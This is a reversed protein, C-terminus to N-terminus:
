RLVTKKRIRIARVACLLILACLLIAGWQNLTPVPEWETIRATLILSEGEVQQPVDWTIPTVTSSLVEQFPPYTFTKIGKLTLEDPRAPLSFPGIISSEQPRIEEPPDITLIAFDVSDKAFIVTSIRYTSGGIPESTNAIELSVEFQAAEALAGDWEAHLPLLCTLLFLAL